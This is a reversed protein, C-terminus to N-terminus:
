CYVEAGLGAVVSADTDSDDAAGTLECRTVAAPGAGSGCLWDVARGTECDATVWVESGQGGGWGDCYWVASPCAGSGWTYSVEIASAAWAVSDPDEVEAGAIGCYSLVKAVLAAGM